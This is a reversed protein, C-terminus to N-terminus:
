ENIENTGGWGGGGRIVPTLLKKCVSTEPYIM